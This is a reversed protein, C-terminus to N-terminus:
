RHAFQMRASQRKDFYEYWDSDFPNADMKIKLHRTIPIDALKKLTFTKKGGDKEVTEAFIWKRTEGSHFYKNKV